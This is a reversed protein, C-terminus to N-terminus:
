PRIQHLIVLQFAIMIIIVEITINSRNTFYTSTQTPHHSHKWFIISSNRNVRNFRQPRVEKGNQMAGRDLGAAQMVFYPLPPTLMDLSFSRDANLSIKCPIPIGKKLDKTRENFDKCFTAINVGRQGLQPGLPPGPVAMGPFLDM